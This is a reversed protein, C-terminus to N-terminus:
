DAKIQNRGSQKADYLCLDARGLVDTMTESTHWCALGASMTLRMERQDFAVVLMETMMRIRELVIAARELDLDPLIVAFEEGGLRGFLDAERLERQVAETFAKLVHDGAVHGYTDNLHKFHDLDIMAICLPKEDSGNRLQNGLSLLARRNYVGTLPDTNAQELLQHELAKRESIDSVAAFIRREDNVDIYTASFLGWCREGQLTQLQCEFGIVQGQDSLEELMRKRDKPDAYFTSVDTKSIADHTLGFHRMFLTNCEIISGEERTMVYPIPLADLVAELHDSKQRLEHTRSQVVNELVTNHTQLQGYLVSNHYSSAFQNSLLELVRLRQATFLNRTDRHDLHLVSILRDHHYLPILLVSRSGSLTVYPDLVFDGKNLADDLILVSQSNRCYNLMAVPMIPVDAIPDLDVGNQQVNKLSWGQDTWMYLAAHQAGSVKTAWSLMRQSLEGEGLLRSLEQTATSILHLDYRHGASIVHEPSLTRVFCELEAAKAGAGWGHYLSISEELYAKGLTSQKCSIRYKGMRENALAQWLAFGGDRASLIAREFADLANIEKGELAALEASVLYYGPAFNDANMAYWRQLLTWHQDFWSQWQERVADPRVQKLALLALLNFQTYVAEHFIGEDLDAPTLEVSLSVKLAEEYNGFLYSQLLRGLLRDYRGCMYNTEVYYAQAEAEYGSVHDLSHQNDLEGSLVKLLNCQLTSLYVQAPQKIRECTISVQETRHLLTEVSSCVMLDAYFGFIYTHVGWYYDGQELCQHYAADRVHSSLMLPQQWPLVFNSLMMQLRGEILPSAPFSEGVIRSYKAAEFATDYDKLVKTCMLGYMMYVYSSHQSNGETLTLRLLGLITLPFLLSGSNYCCPQMAMLIDLQLLVKKNSIPTKQSLQHFSTESLLQQVSEIAACVDDMTPEVPMPYNLDRLAYQAQTIAKDLQGVRTYQTILVVHVRATQDVNEGRGELSPRLREACEYEGALYLCELRELEADFLVSQAVLSSSQALEFFYELYENAIKYASTSKAKKAAQLNLAMVQERQQENLLALACNFHSVLDFCRHDATDEDIEAFRELLLCGIRYHLQMRDQEDLMSYAAQQVRDHLFSLEGKTPRGQMNHVHQILGMDLAPKLIEDLTTNATDVETVLDTPFRAGICSAQMLARQTKQPLRGIKAIMLDIVNDTSAQREIDSESWRWRNQSYDFVLLEQQYLEHLFQRFFFPNGATKQYVLDGLSQIQALPLGLTDRMVEHLARLPLPKLDIQSLRSQEAMLDQLIRSFPHRDDVENNRYAGLLLCYRNETDMMLMRLLNISALDAWQLDDIFVVLPKHATCIVRVFQLFVRNFRNQQEEAGLPVPEPQPGLLCGLDPLIDILVQANPKLAIELRDRWTEVEIDPLALLTRIFQSFAQEIASYPTGGRYQDFKGTVFLGNSQLVPLRVENVVASKGVGSYGAILFAESSGKAVRQFAQMLAQTEVNRGYLRQPIYLCDSCDQGRISFAGQEPVYALVAQLDALMGPCSQYRNSPEKELLASLVASLATSMREIRADPEESVGTKIDIILPQAIQAYGIANDDNLGYFPAEGCFLWYLVCGFAYLDTRRDLTHSFQYGQEPALFHPKAMVPRFGTLDATNKPVHRASCFDLLVAREFDASFLFTAPRLALHLVDREHIECLARAMSVAIKLRQRLSLQLPSLENLPIRCETRLLTKTDRSNVESAHLYPAGSGNLYSLIHNENKLAAAVEFPPLRHLYSREFVTQDQEKGVPTLQLYDDSLISSSRTHVM